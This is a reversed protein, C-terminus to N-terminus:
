GTEGLLHTGGWFCGTRTMGDRGARGWRSKNDASRTVRPMATILVM